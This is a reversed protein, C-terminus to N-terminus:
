KRKSVVWMGVLCLVIVVTTGSSTWIHSYLSEIAPSDVFEEIQYKITIGFSIVNLVHYILGVSAIVGLVIMTAKKSMQM